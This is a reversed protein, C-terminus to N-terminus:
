VGPPQVVIAVRSCIYKLCHWSGGQYSFFIAKYVHRLKINPHFELKAGKVMWNGSLDRLLKNFDKASQALPVLSGQTCDKLLEMHWPWSHLEEIINEMNEKARAVQLPANAM